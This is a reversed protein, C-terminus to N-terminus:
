ANCGIIFVLVEMYVEPLQQLESQTTARSRQRKMMELKNLHEYCDEFEVQMKELQNLLEIARPRESPENALCTKILKM